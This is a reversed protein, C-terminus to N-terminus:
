QSPARRNASAHCPAPGSVAVRPAAAIRELQEQLRGLEDQRLVREFESQIKQAEFQYPMVNAPTGVYQSGFGRTEYIQNLEALRHDRLAAAAAVDSPQVILRDVPPLSTEIVFILYCSDQANDRVGIVQLNPSTAVVDRSVVTFRGQAIAPPSGALMACLLTVIMPIWPLRLSM